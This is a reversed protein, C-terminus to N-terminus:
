GSWLRNLRRLKPLLESILAKRRQDRVRAIPNDPEMCLPRSAGLQTVISSPRNGSREWVTGLFHPRIRVCKRNLVYQACVRSRAGLLPVPFDTRM